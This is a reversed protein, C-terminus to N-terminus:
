DDELDSCEKALSSHSITIALFCPNKKCIGNERLVFFCNQSFLRATWLDEGNM